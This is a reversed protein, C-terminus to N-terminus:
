HERQECPVQVCALTRRRHPAGELSAHVPLSFVRSTFKTFAQKVHKCEMKCRPQPPPPREGFAFIAYLLPAHQMRCAWPTTILGGQGGATCVCACWCCAAEEGQACGARGVVQASVIDNSRGSVTPTIPPARAHMCAHMCARARAPVRSVHLDAHQHAGAAAWGWARVCV